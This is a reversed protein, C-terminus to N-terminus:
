GWQLHPHPINAISKAPQFALQLIRAYYLPLVRGEWPRLTLGITM